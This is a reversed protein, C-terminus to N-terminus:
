GLAENVRSQARDLRSSARPDFRKDLAREAVELEYLAIAASLHAHARGPWPGPLRPRRLSLRYAARLLTLIVRETM